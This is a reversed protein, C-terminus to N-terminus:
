QQLRSKELLAIVEAISSDEKGHKAELEKLKDEAKRLAEMRVDRDVTAHIDIANILRRETRLKVLQDIAVKLPVLEGKAQTKQDDRNRINVTGSENEQAGVVFIFNYMQQQGRLIKKPMTDGSINIDAHIQRARLQAQVEAVYENLAPMVPVVLVQRPSLWFPWRGAFHETIIAIFREFSGIIARHLMIPRARGATLPKEKWVFEKAALEAKALEKQDSKVVDNQDLKAVKKRDTKEGGTSTQQSAEKSKKAPKQKAVAGEDTTPEEKSSKSTAEGTTYELHFRNPLNFDLQLTACQFGRNLADFIEIDIKPGYFAGDEPNIEWKRGTRSCFNNLGETLKAEATDWLEITGLYKQPRTSLKLSFKMDFTNYVHSLFDFYSEIESTVKIGM